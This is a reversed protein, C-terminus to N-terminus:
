CSSKELKSDRRTHLRSISKLKGLNSLELTNASTDHVLEERLFFRSLKPGINM